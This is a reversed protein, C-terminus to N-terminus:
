QSIKGKQVTGSPGPVCLQDDTPFQDCKFMQPWPFGYTKMFGECGKQVSECLSRCPYVVRELCIPAFLSCLFVQTDPHCRIGILPKWNDAQTTAEELNDHELLNPIRMNDYGISHCLTFNTPIDVCKPQLSRGSTVSWASKFAEDFRLPEEGYIGLLVSSTALLYLATGLSM